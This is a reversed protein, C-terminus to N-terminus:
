IVFSMQAPEFVLVAHQGHPGTVEFFNLLKRINNIGRGKYSIEAM